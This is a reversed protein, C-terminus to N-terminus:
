AAPQDEQLTCEYMYHYSTPAGDMQMLKPKSLRKTQIDSWNHHPKDLYTKVRAAEDAFSVLLFKGGPKLARQVQQLIKEVNSASGAGSAMCDLCGKDLVVDFSGLPVTDAFASADLERADMNHWHMNPCTAGFKIRMQKVSVISFDINHIHAESGIVDYLQRSVESNGAGIVLINMGPQITAELEAKLPTGEGADEYCQYWDFLEGNSEYTADWFAVTNPNFGEEERIQRAQAAIVAKDDASAM